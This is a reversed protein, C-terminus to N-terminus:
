VEIGEKLATKCITPAQSHRKVEEPTYCLFDVDKELDWMLYLGYNRDLVHVKRFDKSIIMLDVDSYKNYKGKAYSGFLLMKDIKYKKMLKKKFRKVENIIEKKDM